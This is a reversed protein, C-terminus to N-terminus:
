GKLLKNLYEENYKIKYKDMLKDYFDQLNEKLLYDFMFDEFDEKVESYEKRFKPHIKKIWYYIKENVSQSVLILDGEKKGLVPIEEPLFTKKIEDESYIGLKQIRAGASLLDAENYTIEPHYDFTDKVFVEMIEHANKIEINEQQSYIKEMREPNSKIEKKVAEKLVNLFNESLGEVTLFFEIDEQNVIEDALAKQIYAEDLLETLKTQFALKDLEIKKELSERAIMTKHIMGWLLETKEQITQLGQVHIYSEFFFSRIPWDEVWFVVTRKDNQM